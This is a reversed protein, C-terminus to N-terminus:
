RGRPREVQGQMNVWPWSLRRLSRFGDTAGMEQERSSTSPARDPQALTIGARALISLDLVWTHASRQAWLSFAARVHQRAETASMGTVRALQVLAEHDRGRVPWALTHPRTATPAFVSSGGCSRSAGQRARASSGGSTRKWGSRGHGTRVKGVARLRAAGGPGASSWVGCVSGTRSLSVRGPMPSGARNRCSIWLCVRASRAIRAPCCYPCIPGPRGVAGTAGDRPAACVLAQCGPGVPRRVARAQDKESPRLEIEWHLPWRVFDLFLGDIPNKRAISGITALLDAQRRRDSPTMGVYWELQPRPEGNELIPWLEPRERILRFNSAHDSFCALGAYFRLGAAHTADVAAPDYTEAETMVANIGCERFIALQTKARFSDGWFEPFVFAGVLREVVM